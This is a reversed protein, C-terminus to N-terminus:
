FQPRSSRLRFSVVAEELGLARVQVQAELVEQGAVAVEVAGAAAVVVPRHSLRPLLSHLRRRELRAEPEM